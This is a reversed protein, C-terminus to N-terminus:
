RMSGAWIFLLRWLAKVGYSLNAHVKEPSSPATWVTRVEVDATRAHFRHAWIFLEANWSYEKTKLRLKRVFWPRFAHFGSQSDTTLLRFGSMARVTYTAMGNLVRRWATPGPADKDYLRSGTVVDYGDRIKQVLKPIDEPFHQGDGDMTILIDGEELRGSAYLLITNITSGLGRNHPHSIVTAGAAFALEATADRSGDDVVLVSDAYRQAGRVAWEIHNAENYAPIAVLIM